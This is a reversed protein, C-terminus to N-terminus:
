RWGRAALLSLVTRQPGTADAMPSTGEPYRCNGYVELLTGLLTLGASGVLRHSDVRKHWSRTTSWPNSTYSADHHKTTREAESAPPLPSELALPDSTCAQYIQHDTEDDWPDYATSVPAAAANSSHDLNAGLSQLRPRFRHRQRLGHSSTM